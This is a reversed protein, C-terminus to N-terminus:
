DITALLVVLTVIQLIQLGRVIQLETLLIEGRDPNSAM